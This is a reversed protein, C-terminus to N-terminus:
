KWSTFVCSSPVNESAFSGGPLYLTCDFNGAEKGYQSVAAMEASTFDPSVAWSFTTSVGATLSCPLTASRAVDFPTPPTRTANNPSM